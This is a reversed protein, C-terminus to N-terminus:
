EAGAEKGGETREAQKAEMAAEIAAILEKATKAEDLELNLNEKAFAVLQKKTLKSFNVMTGETGTKGAPTTPIPAAPIVAFGHSLAFDTIEPPM